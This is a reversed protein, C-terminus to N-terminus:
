REDFLALAGVRTELQYQVFDSVVRHTEEILAPPFAPGTGGDTNGAASTLAVEAGRERYLWLLHLVEPDVSRAGAPRCDSCVAGGFAPAFAHHPGRKGCHACDFFSAEWGAADLATVFFEDLRATVFGRDRSSFASPDHQGRDEVGGSLDGLAAVALDYIATEGAGAASMTAATEVVASAATYRDYDGIIGSAFYTVTDAGTLSELNKGHYLQVDLEVFPQVRSGFHSRARRVGKAVARVVGRDRTLLVVIRDAEGFDYTRVVLARVRYSERRM